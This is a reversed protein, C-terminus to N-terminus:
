FTYLLIMEFHFTYIIKGKNSLHRRCIWYWILESTVCTSLFTCLISKKRNPHINLKGIRFTLIAITLISGYSSFISKVSLPQHIKSTLFNRVNWTLVHYSKGKGIRASFKYQYIFISSHCKFKQMAVHIGCLCYRNM